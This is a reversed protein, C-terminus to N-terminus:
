RAEANYVYLVQKFNLSHLHEMWTNSLKVENLVNFDVKWALRHWEVRIKGMIKDEASTGSLASEKM